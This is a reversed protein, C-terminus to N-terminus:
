FGRLLCFKLELFLNYSCNWYIPECFCNIKNKNKSKPNISLNIRYLTLYNSKISAVKIKYSHIILYMAYKM